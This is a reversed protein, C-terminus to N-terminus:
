SHHFHQTQKLSYTEFLQAKLLRSYDRYQDIQRSYICPLPVIVQSPSRDSDPLEGVGVVAQSLWHHLMTEKNVSNGGWKRILFAWIPPQQLSNRRLLLCSTSLIRLFNTGQLDSGDKRCLQLM